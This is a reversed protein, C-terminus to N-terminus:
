ESGDHFLDMDKSWGRIVADITEDDVFKRGIDKVKQEIEKVVVPRIFQPIKEVRSRAGASWELESPSRPTGQEWNRYKGEVVDVTVREAGCKRAWHEVRCKTMQRMFGSPIRELKDSADQDWKLM